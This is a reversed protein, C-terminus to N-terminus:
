LREKEMLLISVSHNRMRECIAALCISTLLLYMWTPIICMRVPVAVHLVSGALSAEWPCLLTQNGMAPGVTDGHVETLLTTSSPLVSVCM